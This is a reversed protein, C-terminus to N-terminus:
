PRALDIMATLETKFDKEPQLKLDEAEEDTMQTYGDEEDNGKKNLNTPSGVKHRTDGNKKKKTMEDMEISKDNAFQFVYLGKSIRSIDDNEKSMKTKSIVKRASFGRALFTKHKRLGRRKRSMMNSRKRRRRVKIEEIHTFSSDKSLKAMDVESHGLDLAEMGEQTSSFDDIKNKGQVIKLKKKPTTLDNTDYEKFKKRNRRCRFLMALLVAFTVYSSTMGLLRLGPNVSTVVYGDFVSANNYYYDDENGM